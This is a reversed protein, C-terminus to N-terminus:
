APPLVRDVASTTKTNQLCKICQSDDSGRYFGVCCASCPGGRPWSYEALCTCSHTIPLSTWVPRPEDREPVGVRPPSWIGSPSTTPRAGATLQQLGFVKPGLHRIPPLDQIIVHFQMPLSLNRRLEFVEVEYSCDAVRTLPPQGEGTHGLFLPELCM